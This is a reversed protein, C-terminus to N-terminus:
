VFGAFHESCVRRGLAQGVKQIQPIYEVSDMVQVQEPEVGVVGLDALGQQSVDADYRLYTFLRKGGPPTTQKLDGIERDLPDGFRCRGFVRCLMDQQNQAGFILASPIAQANYLLNMKAPSLTPDVRPRNGTGVSVILMQTEEAPWGIRYEPLTAMLFAQFSPNNYPTVGGDVFIFDHGGFHVEEPPFYTPAATSARVLQWLPLRLNCDARDLVNYKARPNNSVPWPSDTSVNRTVIMLLTRLRDTGLETDSGITDKLMAVLKDDEYKAYFRKLLFAKDFMQRGSELYFRRVSDVPMGLALCTAIVAGTSTGGVLDFYDALVLTPSGLQTRLSAEIQALVEISIMGLIGGGDLTLIKKPGPSDIRQELARMPPGGQALTSRMGPFLTLPALLLKFFRRRSTETLVHERLAGGPPLFRDLQTLPDFFADGREAL